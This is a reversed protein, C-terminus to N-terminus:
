QKKNRSRLLNGNEYKHSIILSIITQYKPISSDLQSVETKYIDPLNTQYRKTELESIMIFFTFGLKKKEFIVKCYRSFTIFHNLM